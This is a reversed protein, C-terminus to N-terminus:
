GNTSQARSKSLLYAVKFASILSSNNILEKKTAIDYATGHDPSTRIIDLGITTNVGKDFCLAKFPALAQDHYITVVLDHKEYVDKIFATDPSLADTINVGQERLAKCCPNITEIEEFGMNGNEGAHPNLGTIAIKPSFGFTKKFNDEIQLINKYLLDYSLNDIVHRLSKHIFIPITKIKLKNDTLLMNYSKAGTIHSIYETHGDFSFGGQKMLEKNFPNTVVGDANQLMCHRCATKISDLIFPVNKSNREGFIVKDQIEIDIVPLCKRFIDKAEKTNTIKAVPFSLGYFKQAQKLLSINSVLSFSFSNNEKLDFYTKLSLFSAISAPDGATLIFNKIENKKCM